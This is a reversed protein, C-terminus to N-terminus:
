SADPTWYADILIDDGQQEVKYCEVCLKSRPADVWSGDVVSFRWGHWPCMVTGDIVFGAGLPGGAHPCHEDIAYPKGEHLFLAILRGEVEVTLGTQPKLQDFTAVKIFNPM